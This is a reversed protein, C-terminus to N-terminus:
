PAARDPGGAADAPPDSRAYVSRRLDNAAFYDTYVSQLDAFESGDASALSPCAQREQVGWSYTMDFPRTEPPLLEDWLALMERMEGVTPLRYWKRENTTCGQGFAQFVPVLREPDIGADFARAVRQRIKDFECHPKKTNCPYVVIGILDASDALQAFEEPYKHGASVAIFTRAAPDHKRILDSRERIREPADPCVSPHPTDAIFYIGSFKPHDRVKDVIVATEEDNRQWACVQDYGNRMWLIGKAGEPLADLAGVSSVDALDFGIRAAAPFDKGHNVVYHHPQHMQGASGPQPELVFASAGLIALGALAVAGLRAVSGVRLWFAAVGIAAVGGAVPPLMGSLGPGQGPAQVAVLGALAIGVAVAVAVAAHLISRFPAVILLGLAFAGLLHRAQDDLDLGFLPYAVGLLLLSLLAGGAFVAIRYLDAATWPQRM